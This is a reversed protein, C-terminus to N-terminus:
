IHATATMLFLFHRAESIIIEAIIPM